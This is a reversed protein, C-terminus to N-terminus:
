HREQGDDLSRKAYDTSIYGVLTIGRSSAETFVAAYDLNRENGPGSDPNAIAVIEVKSAADILRGWERLGDGAPYIYAPVLM